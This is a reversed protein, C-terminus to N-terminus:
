TKKAAVIPNRLVGVGELEVEVVDGPKMPSTRGPTGTFICDGPELTVYRSIFSVMTDCDFILASTSDEQLTKGNLRTAIKLKSYNLGRVVAPGMPGFTDAGKARWWQIDKDKGNQWQRESVDNGATIGWIVGPAQAKTINHARKGIVLVLECEFHLDTADAPYIIPDGPNQLSTLPKYFIEPRTPEPATSLHSRYNRAMALVKTPEVPYLLKVESMTHTKGNPKHDGFLSGSIERITDGDLIGYAVASGKRFRVYKTIGGATQAALAPAAAAAAKMLDRRTM